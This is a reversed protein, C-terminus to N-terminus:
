DYNSTGGPDAGTTSSRKTVRGVAQCQDAHPLRWRPARPQAASRSAGSRQQESTTPHLFTKSFVASRLFPYTEERRAQFSLLKTRKCTIKKVFIIKTLNWLFHKANLKLCEERWRLRFQAAKLKMVIQPWDNIMIATGM